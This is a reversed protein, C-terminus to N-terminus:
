ACGPPTPASCLDEGTFTARVVLDESGIVSGGGGYLTRLGSLWGLTFAGNAAAARTIEVEVAPIIPGGAYGLQTDRYTITVEGPAIGPHLKQMEGVVYDFSFCADSNATCVLPEFGVCNAPCRLGFAGGEARENRNVAGDPLEVVRAGRVVALRAGLQAAKDLAKFEYFAVSVEVGLFLVAFILPAAIVFEMTTLGWEDRGFGKRRRM